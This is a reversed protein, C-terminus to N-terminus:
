KQYEHIVKEYYEVLQKVVIDPSLMAIRKKANDQILQRKESPLAMVKHVAEVLSVYDGIECLFGSIEDDILQEFSAGRTGIVIQGLAMCEICANSLNETLSPLMVAIANKIIPRLKAFGIASNYIIRDAYEGANRRILSVLHYDGDGIIGIYLDTYKELIIHAADAIECLGKYKILTGYFLLYRKGKYYENFITFDEKKDDLLFPSEIVDVKVGTDESVRNAAVYSPGFVADSNRIAAIEMEARVEQEAEGGDFPVMKAYSSLRTVAPASINHFYALGFLSTYQVIDIKEKSALESLRDSLIIGDRINSAVVDKKCDSYRKIIPRRVRYVNIGYIEYDVTRNSCTIVSVKHGMSILSKSVRLLYQPLGTTPGNNDIFDITVFM